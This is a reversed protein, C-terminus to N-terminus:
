LHGVTTGAFFVQQGFAFRIATLRCRQARIDRQKGFQPVHAIMMEDLAGPPVVVFEPSALVQPAQGLPVGVLLERLLDPAPMRLRDASVIRVDRM